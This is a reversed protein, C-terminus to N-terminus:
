RLPIMLRDTSHTSDHCSNNFLLIMVRTTSSYFWSVLQQLTSDHCSNNFLLIMVRTTLSYFWSSCFLLLCQLIVDWRQLASITNTSSIQMQWLDNQVNLNFWLMLPYQQLILEMQKFCNYLFACFFLTFLYKTPYIGNYWYTAIEHIFQEFYNNWMLARVIDCIELITIWYYLFSIDIYVHTNLSDIFQQALLCLEVFFVAILNFVM